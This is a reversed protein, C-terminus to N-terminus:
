QAAIHITHTVPVFAARIVAVRKAIEDEFEKRAANMAAADRFGHVSTFRHEVEYQQKRMVAELLKNFPEWFPNIVFDEALNIGQALQAASYHRSTIGWTVKYKAAKAGKVVLLLRNLKANFPVLTMGSRLSNNDGVSSSGIVCFPYRASTVTLTGNNFQQVKHGASATASGNALDVTFTGIDGRLGMATLFAHAMILHGAWGPHIGDGGTLAYGPGYERRAAVSATFLPWFVDAFRVEEQAAIAIDINRLMCLSQNHDALTGANGLVKGVCGPSGLVVRAGAQKFLHVIATSNERYWRGNAADYPRFKFDNMGYCTTAITPKFSLCDQRMRRLFGEATEGSWGYQRVTVQLDPVCATLYTEMISSYLNAATISDGCVALRDGVQLYLGSAIPAKIPNLNAFVPDAPKSELEAAGTGLCSAASLLFVFARPLVGAFIAAPFSKM